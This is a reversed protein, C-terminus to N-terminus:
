MGPKWMITFTVVRCSTVARGVILYNTARLIFHECTVFGRRDHQYLRSRLLSHFPRTHGRLPFQSFTIISIRAPPSLLFSSNSNSNLFRGVPLNLCLYGPVSSARDRAACCLRKICCLIQSARLNSLVITLAPRLVAATTRWCSTCLTLTFTCAFM